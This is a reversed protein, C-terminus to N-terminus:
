KKGFVTKKIGYFLAFVVGFVVGGDIPLGYPPPASPPPPNTQGVCVM